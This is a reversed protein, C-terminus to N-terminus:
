ERHSNLISLMIQKFISSDLVEFGNLIATSDIHASIFICCKEKLDFANVENALQIFQCVNTIDIKSILSTECFVMLKKMDYKDAFRLLQEFLYESPEVFSSYMDYCFYVACKVVEFEFDTITVKREISEKMTGNFMREFVPSHYGLVRSHAHISQEEIVLAVDKSENDEFMFTALSPTVKLAADVDNNEILSTTATEDLAITAHLEITFKGDLVYHEYFNELPILYKSGHTPSVRTFTHRVRKKLTTGKIVFKGMLYVNKPSEMKIFASLFNHPERLGNPYVIMWWKVDPLGDVFFKPSTFYGNKNARLSFEDIEWECSIPYSKTKTVIQNMMM